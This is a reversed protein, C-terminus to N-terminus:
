CHGCTAGCYNGKLMWSEQCKGFKKQQACTYQTGPVKDTCESSPASAQGTTTAQGTGTGQGTGTTTTPPPTPPPTPM